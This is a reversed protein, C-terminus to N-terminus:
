ELQEETVSVLSLSCRELGMLTLTLPLAIVDPLPRKGDMPSATHSGHTSGIGL